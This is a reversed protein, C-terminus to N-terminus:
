TEDYFTAANGSGSARHSVETPDSLSADLIGDRQLERVDGTTGLRNMQRGRQQVFTSQVADKGTYQEGLPGPPIVSFQGKRTQVGSLKYGVVRDIEGYVIRDTVISAIEFARPGFTFFDGEVLRIGRDLLDRAHVYVEIKSTQDYTFRTFRDEEPQWMILADVEIPGDVFKTQSEDYVDHVQTRQLSVPFLMVRQGVVDRLLEKTIDSILDIERPTIFLRSM